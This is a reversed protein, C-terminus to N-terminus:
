SRTRVLSGTHRKNRFLLKNNLNYSLLFGVGFRDRESKKMVGPNAGYNLNVGYRSRENGGGLSLSHTHRFSTQLPQSLWYTNVGREVEKHRQEYLKDLKMQNAVNGEPDKYVGALEEFQLKESANLLDYDTM